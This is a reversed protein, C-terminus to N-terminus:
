GDEYWQGTEFDYSVSPYGNQTRFQLFFDTRRGYYTWSRAGATPMPISPLYDPVLDALEDPFIGHDRKYQNLANIIVNGTATSEVKEKKSWNRAGYPPLLYHGALDIAGWIVFPLVLLSAILAVMPRHMM